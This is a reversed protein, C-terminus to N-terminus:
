RALTLRLVPRIIHLPRRALVFVKAAAENHMVATDLVCSELLDKVTVGEARCIELARDAVQRELDNAFFLDKPIGGRITTPETFLSEKPQVRWSDAYPHYLDYFTVPEKLVAGYATALVQANGRPDGLLGRTENAPARGLGVTVNIWEPQLEATLRNGNSASVTYTDGHRTIQVGTSLNITKGDALAAPVGDIVLRIPEIYIAVRSSGMRTAVAKNVATNPYQPPGTRQRTQVEFDPGNQMLVFDGTAQFDYYLGDFTTLHTDGISTADACSAPAGAPPPNVETFVLAPMSGMVASPAVNNLTMNNSEGTFSTEDCTPGATTGSLEGIRVTLSSPSNFVAQDGGGDGFVNFEAERWTSGLDPFYNNGPATVPMGGSVTVALSDTTGPGTAAYATVKFDGINAIPESISPVGHVANVVCYTQGYLAQECWGTSNVSGNVCGTGHPAPCTAGPPGWQELWYQIFGTGTSSYVFQEWGSCGNPPTTGNPSGSCASTGYFPKSNLQLSYANTDISGVCSPSTPCVIGTTTITCPVACENMINSTSDFSGETETITGSATIASFDYQGQGVLLARSGSRPPYLKNPPTVCPIESWEKDPYNATFCKDNAPRRTKLITKRWNELEVATPKRTEAAQAKPQEKVDQAAAKRTGISFVSLVLVALIAYFKVRNSRKSNSPAPNAYTGKLSTAILPCPSEQLFEQEDHVFETRTDTPSM